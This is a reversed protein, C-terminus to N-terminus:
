LAKSMTRYSHRLISIRMYQRFHLCFHNLYQIPHKRLPNLRRRKSLSVDFARDEHLGGSRLLIEVQRNKRKEFRSHKSTLQVLRKNSNSRLRLLALNAAVGIPPTLSVASRKKFYATRNPCTVSTIMTNNIFIPFIIRLYRM